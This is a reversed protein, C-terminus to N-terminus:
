SCWCSAPSSRGWGPWASRKRLLLYGAVVVFSGSITFEYMNGWPVRQAAEARALLGVFHAIVAIVTLMLALNGFM